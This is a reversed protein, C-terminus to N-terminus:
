SSKKKVPFLFLRLLLVTQKFFESKNQLNESLPRQFAYESHKSQWRKLSIKCDQVHTAGDPASNLCVSIFETQKM